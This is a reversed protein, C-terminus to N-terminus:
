SRDRAALLDQVPELPLAPVTQGDVGTTTEAQTLSNYIAEETAEIAARFLPTLDCDTVTSGRDNAFAIVFDGSGHHAIGGARALGMPARKAIRDLQRSSVTADTGVIIMISGGRPKTVDGPQIHRGVPLGDIQLDTPKGTNTLVLVGVTYDATMRSAMGIGAKWGFGTTGRGAGICGEAVTDPSAEDLAQQVHEAAVHRGRIDNLLGDNCEGTVANVSTANSHRDLVDSVTADAVRWVNLTNTLTIPTELAGLERVQSLGVSKGYGNLVHVAGTVPDAFVDRSDPHIATVGTRLCPPNTPDGSDLTVNGVSVGPVDILANHEATMLTGPEIGLTRVRARDVTM